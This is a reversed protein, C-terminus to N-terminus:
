TSSTDKQPEYHIRGGRWVCLYYVTSLGGVVALLLIALVLVVKWVALDGAVSFFFLLKLVLCYAVSIRITLTRLWGTGGQEKITHPKSSATQMTEDEEPLGSMESDNEPWVTDDISLLQLTEDNLLTEVFGQDLADLPM